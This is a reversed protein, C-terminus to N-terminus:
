RAPTCPLRVWGPRSLRGAVTKFVAVARGLWDWRIMIIGTEYRFVTM